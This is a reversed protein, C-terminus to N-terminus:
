TFPSPSWQQVMVKEQHGPGGYSTHSWWRQGTFTVTQDCLGDSIIRTYTVPAPRRQWKYNKFTVLQAEWHRWRTFLFLHGAKNTAWWRPVLGRCAWKQNRSCGLACGPNPLWLLIGNVHRCEYWVSYFLMWKDWECWVVVLHSLSYM